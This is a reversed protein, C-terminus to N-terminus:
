LSVVLERELRYHPVGLGFKSTVIHAVSSTHLL